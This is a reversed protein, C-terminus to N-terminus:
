KRRYSNLYYNNYDLNPYGYVYCPSIARSRRTNRILILRCNDPGYEKYPDIQLLKVKDDKKFGQGYAWIMYKRFDTRWEYCMNIKYDSYYKNHTYNRTSYLFDKVQGYAHGLGSTSSYKSNRADHNVFDPKHSSWNVISMLPHELYDNSM